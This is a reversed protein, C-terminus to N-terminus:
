PGKEERRLVIHETDGGHVLDFFAKLSRYRDVPVFERHIALDRQIHLKTSGEQVCVLSYSAFEGPVKRAEPRTEATTGEPLDIVIDNFERFRYPFYVPYKREAHRFPHQRSGLLPSAPLLMRDGASTALGPIAIEYEVVLTPSSNDINDIKTMTVRAGLPLLGSLEQEFSERIQEPDSHLHGLRRVMAEHGQYTTKVTGAAQGEGDLRLAIKRQTLAMDPPYVSTSFFRPPSESLRVATTGSRSWHVLGFPCFPTAPDLYLVRDGLVVVAVESDLQSAFSLFTSAFLKDDRTSVRAVDAEYGAARALAVFARTIDSRYGYGNELVDAANRNDKLKEAKRQRSTRHKEYSLNRIQQAREYLRGLAKAPDPEDGIIRRSIEVLKRPKGIFSEAANQWNQCEMEWYADQERFDADFYFVYVGMKESDEPPMLEEREFAPINELELELQDRKWVPRAEPILKTFWTLRTQGSFMMSLYLSMYEHPVYVFRAKRTFLDEQVHWIAVPLSLMKMGKGIDGEPPKGPMIELADALDESKGKAQGLDVALRYRYDIISGPKVDPLAFAKVAVRIGPGRLVTKDFVQGGFDRSQGGEDVVRAEIGVVKFSGKTYPIEINAQDRGAATLVKIRKHFSYELKNLDSVEERYLFVASAGPHQPCDKMSLEEASIPPWDKQAALPPAMTLFIAAALATAMSFRSRRSMRSM